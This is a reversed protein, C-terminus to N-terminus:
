ARGPWLTLRLRGDSVAGRPYADDRGSETGGLAETFFRGSNELSRVSLGPHLGPHNLGRTKPM